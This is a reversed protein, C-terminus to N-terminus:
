KHDAFNEDGFDLAQDLRTVEVRQAFDKAFKRRGIEGFYNKIKGVVIRHNDKAHQRRRQRRVNEFIEVDLFLFSEQTRHRVFLDGSNQVFHRRVIARRKEFFQRARHRPM